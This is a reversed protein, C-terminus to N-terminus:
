LFKKVINFSPTSNDEFFLDEVKIGVEEFIKRDYNKKNLRIILSIKFKKLIPIYDKPQMVKINQMNIPREKKPCSFAM